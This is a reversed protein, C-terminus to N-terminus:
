RCRAGTQPIADKQGSYIVVCSLTNAEIKDIEADMGHTTQEGVAPLAM